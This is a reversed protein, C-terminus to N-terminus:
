RYLHSTMHPTFGIVTIPCNTTFFKARWYASAPRGARHM